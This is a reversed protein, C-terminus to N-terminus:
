LVKICKENISPIERSGEPEVSFDEWFLLCKGWVLFSLLDFM